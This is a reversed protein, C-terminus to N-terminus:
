NDLPSIHAFVRSCQWGFVADEVAGFGDERTCGASDDQVVSLGAEYGLGYDVGVPLYGLGGDMMWGGEICM